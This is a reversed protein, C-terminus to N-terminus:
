KKPQHAGPRYTSAAPTAASCKPAESSHPLNQASRQEAAPQRVSKDWFGDDERDDPRVAQHEESTSDFPMAAICTSGSQVPEM